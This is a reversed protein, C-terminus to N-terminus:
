KKPLHISMLVLTGDIKSFWHPTKEPVMIFDGKAVQQTMGGEIGEGSANEANTRTEKTLKGGTVLTGSGEIVYFMEAETDHQSAPAVMARYELSANYPALSVIRQALMPQDPRREKKAKEIMGAIEASSAFLKMPNAGKQQAFAVTAILLLTAILRM